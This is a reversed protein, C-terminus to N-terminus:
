NSLEDIRADLLTIAAQMKMEAQRNRRARADLVGLHANQRMTRLQDITYHAPIKTM